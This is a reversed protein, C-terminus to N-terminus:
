AMSFGKSIFDYSFKVAKLRDLHLLRSPHGAHYLDCKLKIGVKLMMPLTDLEVLM